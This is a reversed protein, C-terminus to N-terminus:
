PTTEAVGSPATGAPPILRERQRKAPPEEEVKREERIAAAAQELSARRAATEAATPRRRPAPSRTPLIHTLTSQLILLSPVAILSGVPGWAWMWFAISLFILFPNLTMTRGLFHPTIIQGELFNIGGVVMVPLLIDFLETKTGLGVALLTVFMIAQGVYPVYNLVFAMAGWLLPSPMGIAWMGIAVAIGVCVNIFTISLLFRSVKQEVDNFVHATRWRMRRTVCLSLVSLRIHNRTALYFYLSALFILGQALMAPAFMAISTVASGDEVTVAVASDTGLVGRIQEQLGGLAELPGKLNTLERRLKEWIMPARDIWESLPQAFVYIGLAIVGLFMLVILGGSLAPPIHMKELRDAVPGFMLGVVIALSVPALIVQGGIFVWGVAVVGVAVIALGSANRLIREFQSETMEPKVFRRRSVSDTAM